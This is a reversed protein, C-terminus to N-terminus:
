APASTSTINVGTAWVAWSSMTSSTTAASPRASYGMGYDTSYHQGDGTREYLWLPIDIHEEGTPEDCIFRFVVQREQARYLSLNYEEEMFDLNYVGEEPEWDAWRLEVYVLSTLLNETEEANAWPAYGM